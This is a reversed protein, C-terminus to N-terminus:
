FELRLGATMVRPFLRETFGVAEGTDRTIVGDALGVNAHNLVNLAEAFLAFRREGLDFTREARLDLRAYAPLRAQNRQHGAFLRGGRAVLYGPIPFNTGGRFTVGARTKWPLTVLGTANITHRQDFDAAFTEQRATDTYRATGYSYGIWGSLGTRSRREVSVEIGRASGTLANDFHSAVGEDALVGEVLRPHVDPERLVDRERRAFATVDWRVGSSLRQGIGLDVFRAREARLDAAGEWGRVHELGPFQHMAGTSAHLVWRPVPSWETRVWRDVARQNLLTSDALRLGAALTVGSVMMWEYSAHGSRELWSADVDIATLEMAPGATTERGIPLHRSGHVQRVQTGAEVVGRFLTRTIDLRYAEAGNTGRNASRRTRDENIFEHALASVRQTVVTHTGIISRWAAGAMVARNAGASLALPNSDEREVNSVGGVFSLRVQQGPRVDYVLKSQVDGFGFAMGEDDDRGVPWEVHSKRLGVLWSGRASAGLPGEATLIASTGSVSVRFRRATRSGERLTLNLQPGLQGGDRRPYAGVQLAAEQVIGNSLMSLTGADGRGPGSHQLWPSVIGDVVVAAHHYPSGRVSYESRFDNGGAVGPMSQVIRLPDDAVHGGFDRLEDFGLRRAPGANVDGPGNPNATVTVREQYVRGAQDGQDRDADAKVPRGPAVPTRPREVKPQKRRVVQIVGGPGDEAALGHPGLLEALQEKLTKARPESRVHMDPTVMESTFVLRLGRTQLMRLADELRRGAFFDSSSQALVPAVGVCLTLGVVIFLWLPTRQQRTIM